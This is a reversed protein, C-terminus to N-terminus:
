KNINTKIVKGPYTWYGGEFSISAITNDKTEDNFQQNYYKLAIEVNSFKISETFLKDSVMLAINVKYKPEIKDVSVWLTILEGQENKGNQMEHWVTNDPQEIPEPKPEKIQSNYCDLAGQLNKTYTEVRYEPYGAEMSAWLGVHEGKENKGHKTICWTTEPEPQEKEAIPNNHCDMCNVGWIENRLKTLQTIVDNVAKEPLWVEDEDITIAVLPKEYVKCIDIYDGAGDEFEYSDESDLIELISVLKEKIEAIKNM